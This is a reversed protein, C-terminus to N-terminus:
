SILGLWDRILFQLRGILLSVRAMVTYGFSAGFGVMLFVIGAKAVGGAFGKHEMSFFFYTLTCIVGVIMLPGSVALVFPGWAPHTFFDGMLALSFVPDGGGKMFTGYIQALINAQMAGTIFIGQYAGFYFAIAWRSMWSIKPILRTLILLGLIGPVLAALNGTLRQETFLIGFGDRLPIILNPWVNNWFYIVFLYGASVGVLLHEAFKYFPNDKYLFTYICLTLLAAIWIWIDTSIYM